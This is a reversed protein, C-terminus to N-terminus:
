DKKISDLVGKAAQAQPSDPSMAIVKEMQATAKVMDGQNLYAFGLKLVPDLWDPKAESAKQYYELAKDVNGTSFYLEAVNFPLTEDGPSQAIAKEFFTVADSLKGQKIYLDGIGVLAGIDGPDEALVAQYEVLAKDLDGMAKYVNGTNRRLQYLTPAEALLQQFKALAEPYQKQQFLQNGETLLAAAKPNGVAQAATAKALIVDLKPNKSMQQVPANMVETKYGDASVTFSYKGSRFGLIAWEGKADVTAQLPSGGADGQAVVKAGPIPKGEQDKVTGSVRGTGTMQARLGVAGSGFALTFTVLTFLTRM